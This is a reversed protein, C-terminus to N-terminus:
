EQKLESSMQIQAALRSPVLGAIVTAAFTIAISAVIAIQPPHLEITWGFSQKNIVYILILSLIYGAVIGILTAVTGIIAAELLIMRRVEGRSMGLVRLLAIERRRELILASLTNIIGLVAVVVAVFLLAYTIMFTQDFIRMVEARISANTVAFAHFRPGLTKEIVAAAREPTIGPELFVAITQIREDGYLRAYLPRDMVAVGRDNSYDRYVGTVPFHHEGDRVPLTVLEGTSTGYKLSLSESILVGGRAIANRLATRADGPEIMPLDGHSIAVEFDASGLSIISDRFIIDRGNIRDAAAVFPLKKLEVTIADTFGGVPTNSLARAPRVWLDSSVTQAVWIRVTERFSGVMIAIAVMMAIAIALAATAVSTRRLSSPVARAALRGSVTAVRALLPTVAAAGATLLIPSVLAFGAVALLVAAYGGAAIGGIPPVRSAAASLMFAVAAGITLMRTRSRDIRQYLGSRILHSPRMAAAEAAPQLAAAISILMGITVATLAASWTLQVESPNSAVYLSNITRSILDLTSWSLVYGFAVGLISGTLGLLAGEALFARIIQANSVGLTKVIGIDRRRRLVSILVTNYVLFLGVLLAVAALAFLNVRFARLMKTVRDNRRSPPEIRLQPPLSQKIAAVTESSEEEPIILDIRSLSGALGFARQAVAIDAIAISGSFASGGGTQELIGRVIFTADRGAARVRLPSGIALGRERAFTGSVVISDNRFLELFPTATVSKEKEPPTVIRAYKYDRFHLDSFLDVALIRLPADDSLITGDIDIVPAFRVGRSWFPQLALLTKEDVTGASSVIQYNARGAIADVSERFSRLASQNSLQIAVIVGIGIAIGAVTLLTRLRERVLPRLVLARFVPATLLIM